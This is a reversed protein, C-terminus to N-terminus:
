FTVSAAGGFVGLGVAPVARMSRPLLFSVLGAALGGALAGTSVWAWRRASSAADAGSPDPCCGRADNCTDRYVGEEHLAVAGTVVSTALAAVAVGGLTWSATSLTTTTRM